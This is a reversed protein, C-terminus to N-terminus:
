LLSLVSLEEGKKIHVQATAPPSGRESAELLSELPNEMRHKTRGKLFPLVPISAGHGVSPLGGIIQECTLAHPQSIEEGTYSIRKNRLDFVVEDFNLNHHKEGELFGVFKPKWTEWHGSM